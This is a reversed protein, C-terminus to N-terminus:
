TPGTPAHHHRNPQKDNNPAAQAFDGITKKQTDIIHRHEVNYSGGVIDDAVSRNLASREIDAGSRWLPNDQTIKKGNLTMGVVEGKHYTFTWDGAMDKINQIAERVEKITKNDASNVLPSFKLLEKELLREIDGLTKVENSGFVDIGIVKNADELIANRATGNFKVRMSKLGDDKDFTHWTDVYPYSNHRVATSPTDHVQTPFGTAAGTREFMRAEIHGMLLETKARLGDLVSGMDIKPSDDYQGSTSLEGRYYAM